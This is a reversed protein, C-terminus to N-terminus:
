PFLNDDGSVLAANVRVLSPDQAIAEILPKVAYLFPLDGTKAWEDDYAWDLTTADAPGARGWFEVSVPNGSADAGVPVTVKPVPINKFALYTVFNCLSLSNDSTTVLGEGLDKQMTLTSDAMDEYTFADCMQAPTFIVDVGHTDFYSNWVAITDSYYPGLSYRLRSEDTVEGITLFGAPGHGDGATYIDNIIDKPSVSANLYARVWESVQGSFTHFPELFPDMPGGNATTMLLIDAVANNGNRMPWEEDAITAGAQSMATISAEYKAMLNTSAVMKNPYVPWGYNIGGEVAYMEAFPYKPVGVKLSSVPKAAAAASAHESAIDLFAADFALLDEFSRTNIGVQDNTLSMGPNGGNPYHNRSPDYGFNHNQYSPHRTSGGTDETFAVPAIYSAVASGSGGSSGGVTFKHDYANLTCGNAYNCTVWSAAFEPVNTKGFIIGGHEKVLAPTGADKIAKYNHLVGSGASSPFDMTAMTGKMPVPLCYLPAISDV